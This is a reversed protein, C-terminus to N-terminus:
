ECQKRRHDEPRCDFGGTAWLARGEERARREAEVLWEVYQVNPQYTALVAWGERVMRWNAMIPGVWVYALRRGYRDRSDVDQELRVESGVRVLAALAAAAQRGFPDQDLEPTDMGILRVRGIGECEIGDGDTIRTVTCSVTERRPSGPGSETIATLSGYPPAVPGLTSTHDHVVRWGQRTRTYVLTMAGTAPQSNSREFVVWRYRLVAIAADNGLRRVFVSDATMRITGPQEFVDRLMQAIRQWGRHIQGDDVTSSAPDNVYLAAVARADGSNIATVYRAVETRIQNEVAQAAGTSAISFSLLLATFRM